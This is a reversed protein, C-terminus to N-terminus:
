SQQAKCEYGTPFYQTPYQGAQFPLMPSLPITNRVLAGGHCKVIDTTQPGYIRSLQLKMEIIVFLSVSSCTISLRIYTVIQILTHVYIINNNNNYTNYYLLFCMEFYLLCM